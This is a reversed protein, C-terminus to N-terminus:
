ERKKAEDKAEGIRMLDYAGEWSVHLMVKREDTTRKDM